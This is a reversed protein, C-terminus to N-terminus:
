EMSCGRICLLIQMKTATQIRAFNERVVAAMMDERNIPDDECVTTPLLSQQTGVINAWSSLRALLCVFIKAM